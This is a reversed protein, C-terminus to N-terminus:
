HEHEAESKEIDAKILYSNQSVYEQGETAGSIVETYHADKRGLQLPAFTYNEGSHIFIGEQGGMIQIAENAVVAKAVFQDIVISGEILMGPALGLKTNEVKVRALQYPQNVVPIIHAIESEVLQKNIAIEVRQGAVVQSRNTPYIRLEAWLTDFNAISFLVQESVFEGTNAHRQIVTGDIPAKISYTRLSDNSEVKALLNGTKVRDGINVNVSSILGPFRAAVHSLQEPSTTLNGYSSVQQNIKRSSVQATKIGVKEAIIPDIRTEVSEEHGIGDEGEGHGSEEEHGYKGKQEDHDHEEAHDDDGEHEKSISHKHGQHSEINENASVLSSYFFTSIVLFLYVQKKM